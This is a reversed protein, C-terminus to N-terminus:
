LASVVYLIFLARTAGSGVARAAGRAREPRRRQPGRAAARLGGRAALNGNGRGLLLPGADRAHPAGLVRRNAFARNERRQPVRRPRHNHRGAPAGRRLGRLLQKVVDEDWDHLVNSFLHVDHDPPLPDTLMDSAIVGVRGAFGRREIARRAIRDVPPKELVSATLDPVHAVIACAYIGSGGAIDLLRRHGALDLRKAMAQASLLGRCDMAALFEEAFAESEMAKHWDAENARSAFNAPLGTRLVEILDRPSPGTRSRRTTRTGSVM